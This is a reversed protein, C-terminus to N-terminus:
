AWAAPFRGSKEKGSAKEAYSLGKSHASGLLMSDQVIKTCILEKSDASVSVMGMVEKSHATVFVPPPPGASSAFGKM